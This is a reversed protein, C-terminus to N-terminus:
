GGGGGGEPDAETVQLDRQNGSYISFTGNVKRRSNTALVFFYRSLTACSM